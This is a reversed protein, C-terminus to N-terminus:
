SARVVAVQLARDAIGGTARRSLVVAAQFVNLPQDIRNHPVLPLRVHHLDRTTLRGDMRLEERNEVPRRAM